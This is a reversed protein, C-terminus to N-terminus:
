LDVLCHIFIQQQLNDFFSENHSTLINHFETFGPGDARFHHQSRVGPSPQHTALLEAERIVLEGSGLLLGFPLLKERLYLCNHGPLSEDIQVFGMVGFRALFAAARRIWKGRHQPDM